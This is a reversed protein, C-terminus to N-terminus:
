TIETLRIILHKLVLIEKNLKFSEFNILMEIMNTSSHIYWIEMFCELITYVDNISINNMKLSPKAFIGSCFQITQNLFYKIM